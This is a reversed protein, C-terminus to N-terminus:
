KILTELFVAVGDEDNSLTTYDVLNKIDDSANSVAVSFGAVEFMSIDNKDNGIAITNEIPIKLYKSVIKLANGKSCNSNAVSFWKEEYSSNENIEDVIHLKNDVSLIDKIKYIDDSKKDIFMCQKVNCGTLEGVYNSNNLLKQNPNRTEKTVYDYDEMTLILRIDKLYAYEVLKIVPDKDIFSNFIIKNDNSDYIESGNSSVIISDAGVDKMVEITQYRPRATCIIIKNGKKKNEQIAKKIRESITGYSKKLTDDSDIFVLRVNIMSIFQEKDSICKIGIENLMNKLIIYKNDNPIYAIIPKRQYHIFHKKLRLLENQYSNNENYYYTFLEKTKDIYSNSFCSLDYNFRIPIIEFSSDLLNKIIFNEDDEIIIITSKEKTNRIENFVDYDEM